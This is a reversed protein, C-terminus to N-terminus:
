FSRGVHIGVQRPRSVYAYSRGGCTSPACEAYRYLDTQNDTLNKVFLEATWKASAVGIELDITAFGPRSGLYAYDVSRLDNRSSSQYSISAQMHGTWDNLSGPLEKDYRVFTTGKFRPTTPLQTGAPAMVYNGSGSCDATGKIKCYNDDLRADNFSGATKFSLGQVPTAELSYEIGKVTANGANDVVTMVVGGVSTLYSFQINKWNEWYLAGNFRLHNDFWSTKFGLEFNTLYDPAYPGAAAQRNIGGPRYGRSWTFYAMRNNDFKYELNLKHLFGTGTAKRPSVSGDANVVGITTCPTGALVADGICSKTSVGAFGVLSNNYNYVRGGGTITLKPLIDYSIQGFGAYDRDVRKERTLWWSGQAGPVSESAALGNVNYYLSIQHEQREMFLGAQFRLPKTQDSALRLEHSMLYFREGKAQIYQSPDIVQGADNHNVQGYYVDYFYSYDSYDSVGDDHRQLYSGAYTLDLSGIKGQVVLGTQIWSDDHYPTFKLATELMGVSKDYAFSGHSLQKQGQISPQITWDDGLEVKLAARGGWTEVDNFNKKVSEANNVSIQATPFYTTREVNDIYGGARDYWGVIRLAAHQGIPLNIMGEVTGSPDGHSTTSGTLDVRAELKGIQPQNTIIRVTGAESSSGYLTGQPGALAEVRAIDYMHLDLEGTITTIPQEDLYVGVTPQSASHNFNEGSAIGRFFLHTNGPGASTFAVSPLFKIVDETNQVKLHQLTESSLATISMPVKQLNEKRKQATVLIEGVTGAADGTAAPEAAPAAEAHAALPALMTTMMLLTRASGRAVELRRAWM